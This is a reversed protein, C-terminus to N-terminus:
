YYILINILSKLTGSHIIVNDIPGKPALKLPTQILIYLNEKLFICKLIGDEVHQSFKHKLSM